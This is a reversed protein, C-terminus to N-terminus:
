AQAGKFYYTKQWKRLLITKLCPFSTLVLDTKHHLWQLIWRKTAAGKVITKDSMSLHM